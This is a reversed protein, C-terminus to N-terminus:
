GVIDGYTMSDVRTLGSLVIVEDVLHDGNNDVFLYGDIGDSHFSYILTNKHSLAENAALLAESFNRALANYPDFTDSSGAALSGFDIKDSGSSFDMIHDATARTIGTDGSNAFNFKDQGEGGRLTDVGLGGSIEDNGNGGNLKDNGAHGSVRDNGRSATVDDTGSGGSYTTGSVINFLGTGVVISGTAESADITTVTSRSSTMAISGAGDIIIQNLHYTDSDNISLNGSGAHITFNEIGNTFVSQLTGEAAAMTIDMMDSKGVTTGVEYTVTTKAAVSKTIKLEAVVNDFNQGAVGTGFATNTSTGGSIVKAVSMDYYTLDVSYASDGKHNDKVELIEINKVSAAQTTKTTYIIEDLETISLRDNGSGGDISDIGQYTTGSNDTVGKIVDDGETGVYEDRITKLIYSAVDDAWVDVQAEAVIVTTYDSTVGTMIALARGQDNIGADAFYIGVETKNELMDNDSGLAGNAIALIMNARTINGSKLEGDWYLAGEVDPGHDFMNRYITDIFESNIMSDPYKEKTEPQDFFSASIMEASMGSGVWFDLGNADPARLFFAVYLEAVEERTAIM